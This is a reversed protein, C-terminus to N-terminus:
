RGYIYWLGDYLKALNKIFIWVVLRLVKDGGLCVDEDNKQAESNVGDVIQETIVEIGHKESKEWTNWWEDLRPMDVAWLDNWQHKWSFDSNRKYSLYRSAQLM